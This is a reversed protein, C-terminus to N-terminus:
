CHSLFNIQLDDIFCTMLDISKDIFSKHNKIIKDTMDNSNAM